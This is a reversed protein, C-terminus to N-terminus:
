KVVNESFSMLMQAVQARTADGQPNLAGDGMGNIIDGNVAWAMAEMAYDSISEYDTFERIAMGGQATDYGKYQAYRYLISAFQERTINDDPGYLGEGYGSVIGQSAAWNVADAYWQDAAVDTFSGSGAEPSGELNYVVQALMARTLKAAPEFTTASTGSMMGNEYVYGVADCFWDASAVDNFPLGTPQTQSGDDAKFTAKVSVASSPMTFTYKGDGKDKVSIAKGNKDTVTLKDLVYGEDPTVTITVTANRAATKSSVSVAGNDGAETSVAYKTVSSSSGGHSPTGVNGNSDIVLGDELYEEIKVAGEYTGTAFKGGSVTLNLTKIEGGKTVYQFTGSTIEVAPDKNVGNSSNEIKVSNGESINANNITLSAEGSKSDVNIGGWGNNETTLGNITAKSGNAVIAYGNGNKITVNEVTVTSQYVNLGHKTNDAAEDNTGAGDIILDKVTVKAGGEINIMSPGGTEGTVKVNEATITKGNGDLTISKTITLIGQNNIKGIGDLIVNDLLTVVDGDKAAEIAQELTNYQVGGIMANMGTVSTNVETGNVTTKVYTVGPATSANDGANTIISNVFGMAGNDNDITGDVKANNVSVTEKNATSGGSTTGNIVAIDGTYSGGTVTISATEKNNQDGNGYVRIADDSAKVTVNDAKVVAGTVSEGSVPYYNDVHIGNEVNIITSGTITVDANKYVEIGATNWDEYNSASNTITVDTITGTVKNSGLGALIGKTLRSNAGEGVTGSDIKGGTIEFSGSRIDYASRCYNTVNVDNAVIKTNATANAPVKIVAVGSNTGAEPGFGNLTVNDLTFTGSTVEFCVANSDEDGTIIFDNGNITVNKNIIAKNIMKVNNLLNITADSNEGSEIANLAADLDNYVTTTDGATVSVKQEAATVLYTSFHDVTWIVNDGEVKADTIKEAGNSGLYYVYINENADDPKPVSVTITGTSGTFVDTGGAKATLEYTATGEDADEGTTNQISLTVAAGDAKTSITRLAENSVTLTGVVSKIELTAGKDAMSEATDAAVNLSATTTGEPASLDVSVNGGVVTGSPEGEGSNKIESTETTYTGELSASVSGGESLEPIVAMQGDDLKEVTYITDSGDEAETVICGPACFNTTDDGTEAACARPNFNKFNGGNVTITATGNQYNRDLCNLLFAYEKDPDLQQISFTGGNIM